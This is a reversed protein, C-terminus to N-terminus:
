FLIETLIGCAEQCIRPGRGQSVGWLLRAEQRRSPQLLAAQATHPCCCALGDAVSPAPTQGSFGHPSQPSPPDQPSTLHFLGSRVHGWLRCHQRADCESVESSRSGRKRM